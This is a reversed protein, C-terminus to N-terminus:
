DLQARREGGKLDAFGSAARPEGDIRAADMEVEMDHRVVVRVADGDIRRSHDYVRLVSNASLKEARIEGHPDHVRVTTEVGTHHGIQRAQVATGAITFGGVLSGSVAVRGGAELTSAFASQVAVDGTARVLSTDVRGQVVIGCSLDPLAWFAEGVDHWPNQLFDVLLDLPGLSALGQLYTLDTVRELERLVDWAAPSLLLMPHELMTGIWTRDAEWNPYHQQVLRVVLRGPQLRAALPSRRGAERVTAAIESLTMGWRQFGEQAERTLVDDLGAILTTRTLDGTMEVGHGSVVMADTLSGEVMVRGEAVIRTHTFDGRLTVDGRVHVPDDAATLDDPTLFHEPVVCIYDGQHFFRGARSAILEGPEAGSEIAGLTRLRPGEAESALTDGFVTVGGRAPVSPVMRGLRQGAEVRTEGGREPTEPILGDAPEFRAPIPPVPPQGEAVILQGTECQDLFARIDALSILGFRIGLRKLEQLVLAVSIPAPTTSEAETTLTLRASPDTEKVRVRLGPEYVVVLEARLGDESTYIEFAARPPVGEVRVTVFDSESVTVEGKKERGNVFVRVRGDAEPDVRISATGNPFGAAARVTLQGQDDVRATAPRGRLETTEESSSSLSADAM